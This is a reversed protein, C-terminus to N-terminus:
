WDKDNNVESLQPWWQDRILTLPSLMENQKLFAQTEYQNGQGQIGM